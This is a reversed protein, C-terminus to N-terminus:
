KGLGIKQSHSLSCIDEIKIGSLLKFIDDSNKRHSMKRETNFKRCLKTM